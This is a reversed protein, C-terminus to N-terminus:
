AGGFFERQQSSRCCQIVVFVREYYTFDYRLMVYLVSLCVPCHRDQIFLGSSAMRQSARSRSALSKNYTYIYEGLWPNSYGYAPADPM